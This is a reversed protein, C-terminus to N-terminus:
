LRQARIVVVEETTTDPALLGRARLWDRRARLVPGFPIHARDVVAGELGLAALHELSAQADSLASHVMLLTGGPRLARAATRCVADIVRRGDRGGDWAQAPGRRPLSDSPSPVYPPNSTIIDFSAARGTWAGLDDRRVTINARNILANARATWVARRSLDVASVNAGRRAAAVAVAGSGTGLDLLDTGPGVDERDLARILLGTDYTPAYVGPLIILRPAQRQPGAQRTHPVTSM